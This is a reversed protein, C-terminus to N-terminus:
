STQTASRAKTIGYEEVRANQLECTIQNTFARVENCGGISRTLDLLWRAEDESMELRLTFRKPPLPVPFPAATCTINAM